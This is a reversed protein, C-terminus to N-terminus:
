SAASRCRNRSARRRRSSAAARTAHLSSTSSFKSRTAVSTRRSLRPRSEASSRSSATCRASTVISVRKMSVNRPVDIPSHTAAVRVSTCKAHTSVCRAAAATEPLVSSSPSWSSCSTASSCSSRSSRPPANRSQASGCSASRRRSTMSSSRSSRVVPRSRPAGARTARRRRRRSSGRASPDRWAERPTRPMLVTSSIRPSNMSAQFAPSRGSRSAYRSRTGAPSRSSSAAPM